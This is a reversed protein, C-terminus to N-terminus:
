DPQLEAQSCSASRYLFQWHMAVRGQNAHSKPTTPQVWQLDVSLKWTCAASGRKVGTFWDSDVKATAPARRHGVGTCM